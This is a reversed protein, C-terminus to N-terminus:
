PVFLRGTGRFNDLELLYELVQIAVREAYNQSVLVLEPNAITLVPLSSPTNLDRITAELSDTDEDSRNATLLIINRQQCVQWLERDSTNYPIGLREFSEVEIALSEWLPAWPASTWIRLLMVFQGEINHDAM